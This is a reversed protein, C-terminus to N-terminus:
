RLLGLPKAAVAIEQADAGTREGRIEDPAADDSHRNGKERRRRRRCWL